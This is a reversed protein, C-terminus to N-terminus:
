TEENTPATTQRLIGAVLLALRRTATANGRLSENKLQQLNRVLLSAHARLENRLVPDAWRPELEAHRLLAACLDEMAKCVLSSRSRGRQEANRREAVAEWTHVAAAVTAEHAVSREYMHRDTEALFAALALMALALVLLSSSSSFRSGLLTLLAASAGLFPLFWLTYIAGM